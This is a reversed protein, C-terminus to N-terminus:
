KLVKAVLHVLATAIAFMGIGWGWDHITYYLTWKDFIAYNTFGYVGYVVAGLVVGNIASYIINKSSHVGMWWIALVM